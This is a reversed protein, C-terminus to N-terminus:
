IERGLIESFARQQLIPDFVEREIYQDRLKSYQYYPVTVEFYMIKDTEDWYSMPMVAIVEYRQRNMQSLLGEDARMWDILKGVEETSYCKVVVPKKRGFM